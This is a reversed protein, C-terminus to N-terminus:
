RKNELVNIITLGGNRGAVFPATRGEERDIFPLYLPQEKIFCGTIFKDGVRLKSNASSIVEYNSDGLYMLRVLRNPKWGIEVSSRPKIDNSLLQHANFFSSNYKTSTKLWQTFNQFTSHGIYQSLLDLTQRRPKHSDNVYGWLRKLTSSSVNYGKRRMLYGSFEDFDTSTGLVKGYTQEVINKLEEIEPTNM